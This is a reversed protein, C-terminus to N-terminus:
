HDHAHSAREACVRDLDAHADYSALQRDWRGATRPTM